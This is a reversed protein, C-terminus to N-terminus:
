SKPKQTIPSPTGPDGGDDRDDNQGRGLAQGGQFAGKSLSSETFRALAEFSSMRKCPTDSNSLELRLDRFM